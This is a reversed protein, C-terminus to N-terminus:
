GTRRPLGHRPAPARFITRGRVKLWRLLGDTRLIRYELDLIGSGHPDNASRMADLFAARDEPHLARAVLDNDLELTGGPPLGFIRLFEPSYHSAGTEFDYSYFGFGTAESALRLRDESRRIEDEATRRERMEVRLKENVEVLERARTRVEGEIQSELLGHLYEPLAFGGRATERRYAVVAAMFYLGAAFQSSRGAWGVLTGVGRTSLVIGLGIAMLFLATSYLRVMLQRTQAQLGLLVLASLSYACMAVAMVAQRTVTPGRGEM